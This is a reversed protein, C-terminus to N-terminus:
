RAAAARVVAAAPIVVRMAVQFREPADPRDRTVPAAFRVERLMSSADLLGILGDARAAFGAIVLQEGTLRFETLWAEDPLLRAVEDLVAGAPPRGGRIEAALAFRARLAAAETDLALVREADGRAAAARAEVAAAMAEGRRLEGLALHLVLLAALGALAAEAMPRWRRGAPSLQELSLSPWASQPDPRASLNAKLGLARLRAAAPAVLRRPLIAVEVEIRQQEPLRQAVRASWVVESAAFPIHQEIEFGLVADLRAEAAEPLRLTRRLVWDPPVALTVEAEASLLRAGRADLPAVARWGGGRARRAVKPVAADHLDVLLRPGHPRAAAPVMGALEARWWRVGRGVVAFVRATM